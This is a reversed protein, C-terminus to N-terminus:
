HATSELVLLFVCVCMGNWETFRSLLSNIASKPPIKKKFPDDSSFARLLVKAESPRLGARRRSPSSRTTTRRRRRLSVTTTTRWRRERGPRRGHAMLAAAAVAHYNDPLSRRGCM